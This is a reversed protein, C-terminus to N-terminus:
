LPEAALIRARLYSPASRWNKGLAIFPREVFRYSLAAVGLAAAITGVAIVFLFVLNLPGIVVPGPALILLIRISAALILWHWLYFSYSLRGIWRSLPNLFLPELWGLRAWAVLVVLAFSGASHNLVVWLRVDAYRTLASPVITVLYALLLAGIAAGRYRTLRAAIAPGYTGAMAGLYFAPLYLFVSDPRVSADVMAAGAVLAALATLDLALRRRRTLWVLVPVLLGAQMEVRLSWTVGNYFQHRLLGTWLLEGRSIQGYITGDFWWRADPPMRAVFAPDAVPIRFLTLAALPVFLALAALHAPYIRLARRLLFDLYGQVAGRRPLADLMLGLVLGSIVFFLIVAARGNTAWLSATLARRIGMAFPSQPIGAAMNAILFAHCWAVALAAFGRLSEIQPLFAKRHSTERTM